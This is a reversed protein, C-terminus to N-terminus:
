KCVMQLLDTIIMKLGAISTPKKLCTLAGTKYAEEVAQPSCYTSLIAVPIDHLTAEQKLGILCKQGDNGPMNMDLVILDPLHNTTRLFHWLGDCTNFYSLRITNNIEALVTSFLLYDDEDDDALCIHRISTNM